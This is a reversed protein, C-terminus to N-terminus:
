RLTGVRGRPGHLHLSTRQLKSVMWVAGQEGALEQLGTAMAASEEHGTATPPTQVSKQAM